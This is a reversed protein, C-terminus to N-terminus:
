IRVHKCMPLPTLDYYSHTYSHTHTHTHTHTHSLSSFLVQYFSFSPSITFFPSLFTNSTFFHLPNRLSIVCVLKLTLVGWLSVCPLFPSLCFFLVGWIMM